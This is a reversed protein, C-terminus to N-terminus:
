SEENKDIHSPCDHITLCINPLTKENKEKMINILYSIQAELRNVSKNFNNESQILNKMCSDTDM